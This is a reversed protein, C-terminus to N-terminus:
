AQWLELRTIEDAATADRQAIWYDLYAQQALQLKVFAARGKAAGAIPGKARESYDDMYQEKQLRLAAAPPPVSAPPQASRIEALVADMGQPSRVMQDFEPMPLVRMGSDHSFQWMSCLTAM